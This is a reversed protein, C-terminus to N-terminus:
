AIRGQNTGDKQPQFVVVANRREKAQYLARDASDVLDSASQDLQSFCAAGVSVTVALPAGLEENPVLTGEVTRRVREAADLASKADMGAMIIAFEEGGYRVFHDSPRIAGRIANSVAALVRDGFVHGYTDNVKKFHDLDAMLLAMGRGHRASRRMEDGLLREFHRKTYAGTLKDKFLRDLISDAFNWLVGAALAVIMLNAAMMEAYITRIQGALYRGDIDVGVLGLNEGGGSIIPAYAPIPKEWWAGYGSPVYGMRGVTANSTFVIEKTPNNRGRAGPPSHGPEGAPEADLVFETTEADLRRETYARAIINNENKISALRGQVNSYYASDTDKTRVFAKYGAADMALLHATTVATGTASSELLDQFGTKLLAMVLTQVGLLLAALVVVCSAVLRIKYRKNL